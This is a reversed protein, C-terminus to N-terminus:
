LDAVPRLTIAGITDYQATALLLGFSDAEDVRLQVSQLRRNVGESLMNFFFPFLADSRYESQTKPLTLSIAPKHPDALWLEDYRFLYQRRNEEMLYGALEGNRYVAAQRM